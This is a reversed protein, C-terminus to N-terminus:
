AAVEPHLAEALLQLAQGVRPGPRSVIDADVLVVRHNRVASLDAYGPRGEVDKVGVGAETTVLYVEPDDKVVQEVSWEPYPNTAGKTVPECGARQLLDFVFSGPGVTFLSPPPSIEVFCSVPPEASIVQQVQAATSRLRAVLASAEAPTGTLEGVTGIDHLVDDFTKADVTFVPVGIDRMRQKWQEGGAITLMLDPHLSIVKEVNPDVGFQGAGGVQEIAKAEPPYDDFSGSVGVLKPGLGLAFVIETNAPAFTVIRQPAAKLTVAVGDDDTLTVPFSPSPTPSTASGTGPTTTTASGLSQPASGSSCGALVLAQVLALLLVLRGSTGGRRRTRPVPM